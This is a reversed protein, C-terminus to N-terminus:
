KVNVKFVGVPFSKGTKSQKIYINKEGLVGIQEIAIAATILKNQISTAKAPKDGFMVQAGELGVTSTVEIWIGLSGDSQVNPNVGVIALQPGWNGILPYAAVEKNQQSQELSVTCSINNIIAVLNRMDGSSTVPNSKALDNGDLLVAASGDGIPLQILENKIALNNQKGAYRSLISSQQWGDPRWARFSINTSGSPCIMMVKHNAEMWGDNSLGYVLPKNEPFIWLHKSYLFDIGSKAENYNWLMTNFPNNKDIILEPFALLISAQDKFQGKWGTIFQSKNWDCYYGVAAAVIIIGLSIFKIITAYLAKGNVTNLLYFCVAVAIFHTNANYWQGMAGDLGNKFRFLSVMLVIVISYTAIALIFMRGKIPRQIFEKFLFICWFLLLAGCVYYPWLQHTQEYFAKGLLSAGTMTLTFQGLLRLDFTASTPKNSLLASYHTVLVVYLILCISVALFASVIKLNVAKNHWTSVTILLFIAAVAGVAYGGLFFLIEFAVAFYFIPNIKKPKDELANALLYSSMVFFTIGIAAALAMGWQPNNTTSLLLLITILASLTKLSDNRFNSQYIAVVVIVTTTVLSAAYIVNDFGGWIDFLYYNLALVLNYGPFLHEGFVTFFGKATFQKQTIDRLFDIHLFQSEFFIDIYQNNLYILYAITFIVLWVGIIIKNKRAFSDSSNNTKLNNMNIKM